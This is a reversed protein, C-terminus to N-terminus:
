RRLQDNAGVYSLFVAFSNENFFSLWSFAAEHALWLNRECFLASVLQPNTFAIV